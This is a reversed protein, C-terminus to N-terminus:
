QQDRYNWIHQYVSSLNSKSTPWGQNITLIRCASTVHTTYKTKYKPRLCTIGYKNRENYNAAGMIIQM